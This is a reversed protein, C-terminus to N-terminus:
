YKQWNAEAMVSEHNGQVQVSSEDGLRREDILYQIVMVFEIVCSEWNGNQACVKTSMQYATWVDSCAVSYKLLFSLYKSFVAVRKWEQVSLVASFSVDCAFTPGNITSSKRVSDM